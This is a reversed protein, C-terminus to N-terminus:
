NVHIPIPLRAVVPEPRDPPTFRWRKVQSLV